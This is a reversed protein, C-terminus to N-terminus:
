YNNIIDMVEMGNDNAIADQSNQGEMINTKDM